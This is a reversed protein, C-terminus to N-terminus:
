PKGENGTINQHIIYCVSWNRGLCLPRCSESIAQGILM